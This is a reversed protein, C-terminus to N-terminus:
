NKANIIKDAFELAVSKPDDSKEIALYSDTLVSFYPNIEENFYKNIPTMIAWFEDVKERTVLKLEVFSDLRISTALHAEVLNDLELKILTEKVKELRKSELPKQMKFFAGQVICIADEYTM